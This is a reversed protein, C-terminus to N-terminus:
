VRASAKSRSGGASAAGSGDRSSSGTSSSSTTAGSCVVSSASSSISSSAGSGILGGGGLPGTNSCRGSTQTSSNDLKWNSSTCPKSGLAATTSFTVWSWKSQCPSM